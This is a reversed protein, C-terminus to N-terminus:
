VTLREETRPEPDADRMRRRMHKVLLRALEDASECEIHDWSFGATLDIGLNDVIESEGTDAHLGGSRTTVTVQSHSLTMVAVPGRPSVLRVRCEPMGGRSWEIELDGMGESRNELAACLRRLRDESAYVM